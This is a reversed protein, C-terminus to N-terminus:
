RQKKDMKADVLLILWIAVHFGILWRVFAPSFFGDFWDYITEYGWSQDFAYGLVGALLAVFFVILNYLIFSIPILLFFMAITTLFSLGKEEIRDSVEAISEGWFVLLGQGISGLAIALGIFFILGIIAGM